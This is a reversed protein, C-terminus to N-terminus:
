VVTTASLSGESVFSDVIFSAFWLMKLKIHAINCDRGHMLKYQM